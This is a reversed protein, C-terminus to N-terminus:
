ARDGGLRTRGQRTPLERLAETQRFSFPQRRRPPRPQITPLRRASPADHRVSLWRLRDNAGVGAKELIHAIRDRLRDTEDLLDELPRAGPQLDDVRRLEAEIRSLERRLHRAYADVLRCWIDVAIHKPRRSAQTLRQFAHRDIGARQSAVLHGGTLTTFDTAIAAAMEVSKAANLLPPPTQLIRFQTM